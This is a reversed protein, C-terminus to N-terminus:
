VVGPSTLVVDYLMEHVPDPHVAVSLIVIATHDPESGIATFPIHPDACPVVIVGGPGLAFRQACPMGVAIFPVPGHAQDHVPEFQPVFEGVHSVLRAELM